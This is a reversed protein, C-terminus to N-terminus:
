YYSLVNSVSMGYWKKGSKSVIGKENLRESIRFYSWGKSRLSKIYSVVKMEDDNNILKKGDKNKGYMLKGYVLGNEKNNRKVDKIRERINEVEFENFSMLINMLLKGMMDNNNINEKVSYFQINNNSFLEMIDVVDKMRRGIRSLSYVVVGDIDESKCRDILELYGDRKSYEM